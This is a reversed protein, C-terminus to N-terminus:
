AKHKLLIKKDQWLVTIQIEQGVFTKREHTYDPCFSLGYTPRNKVM